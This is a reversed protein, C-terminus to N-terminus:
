KKKKNKKYDKKAGKVYADCVEEAEGYMKVKGNELWICRDCIRKMQSTSHSVLLVTVGEKMMSDIKEASKKRFKIDGVSLIEDIILIDPNILTAISFGLKTRMGSSYNKIPYNIFEGLESFEVIEDYKEDIVKEDISLLSGNLYINNKGTYNKDFGAGLELLPAVKGYTKVTGETPEYIGSIIKLLTSKGSGNFGLIGLRDGKYVKFTIDDLIRIKEHSEKNRKITRIIFEKLTDIKDKTVKFEMALHNVDIMVEKDIDRVDMQLKSKRKADNLESNGEFEVEVDYTGKPLNEINVRGYGRDDTICKYTEDNITILLEKGPIANLDKDRLRAYYQGENHIYMKMKPAYITTFKDDRKKVQKAPKKAEKVVKNDQEDTVKPVKRPKKVILESELVQSYEGNPFQIKLKYEGRPLDIHWRAIGDEGTQFEHEEGYYKVKITENSIPKNDKDFAEIYFTRDDGERITVGPAFLTMNEYKCETELIPVERSELSPDEKKNFIRKLRELLSM